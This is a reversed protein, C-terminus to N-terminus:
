GPRRRRDGDGPVRHRAVGDLGLGRDAEHGLVEGEVLVEGGAVVQPEEAAELPQLALDEGVAEVLDELHHAQGVPGVVPDLGVGAAHLAPGVDGDAQQVPRLEEHEVLRGDADVRLAAVGDELADLGQAALAEGDEVGGVVHLLGLPEAVADADDVGAAEHGLARAALQDVLSPWPSRM